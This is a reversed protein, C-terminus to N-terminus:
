FDGSRISGAPAEPKGAAQSPVATVRADWDPQAEPSATASVRTTDERPQTGRDTM